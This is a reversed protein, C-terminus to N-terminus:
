QWVPLVDGQFGLRKVYREIESQIHWAFNLLIPSQHPNEFFEREDRIEIKTGPIYHGIKPSAPREYTAGILTEDLGLSHVLIAARGPFAKAPLPGNKAVMPALLDHLKARGDEISKQMGSVADLFGSEDMAIVQHPAGSGIVVRINGNYRSPFEVTELHRNLREAIFEFSRYSYTRPHEHYFTDFQNLTVVAGLYHNEIVLKTDSSMLRSVNKLLANLDEIHAFVNTFTIIDPQRHDELYANVAASDFYGHHLWDARDRADEIARTPEVGFTNAGRAKFIGLLSGDNCGIDLVKKGELGGTRAEVSAVLQEMGTIVDQTLAARYHYSPPFLLKKEVQVAQHVTICNPCGVLELPYTVPTEPSGIPVLDDCMPQAGLDLLPVLHRSGCVECVDIRTTEVM